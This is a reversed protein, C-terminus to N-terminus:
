LLFLFLLFVTQFLLLLVTVASSMISDMSFELSAMLFSRSRMLSNSLTEPFLILACFDRENKYVLLLLASLSFFNWKDDCCLSYFVSFYVWKILCFVTSLSILSSVFLHLFIGHEEISLSLITFIFISGLAVQQSLAIEILNSITKKM